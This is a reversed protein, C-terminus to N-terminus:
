SQFTQHSASAIVLKFSQKDNPVKKGVILAVSPYLEVTDKSSQTGGQSNAVQAANSIDLYVITLDRYSYRSVHVSLRESRAPSRKPWMVIDRITPIKPNRIAMDVIFVATLYMDM